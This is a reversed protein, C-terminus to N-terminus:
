GGGGGGVTMHGHGARGCWLACPCSFLRLFFTFCGCPQNRPGGVKEGGGWWLTCCFKRPAICLHEKKKFKSSLKGHEALNPSPILVVKPPFARITYDQNTGRHYHHKGHTMPTTTRPVRNTLRRHKYVKLPGKM